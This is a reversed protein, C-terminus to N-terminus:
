MIKLSVIWVLNTVMIACAQGMIISALAPIGNGHFRHGINSALFGEIWALTYSDNLLTVAHELLDM